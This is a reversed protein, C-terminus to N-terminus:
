LIGQKRLRGLIAKSRHSGLLQFPLESPGIDFLPPKNFLLRALYVPPTAVLLTPRKGRLWVAESFGSPMVLCLSCRLFIELELGWSLGKLYTCNSGDLGLDDQTYKADIRYQNEETVPLKMGSVIVHAKKIRILESLLRAMEGRVEAEPPQFRSTIHGSGTRFRWLFGVTFRDEFDVGDLGNERICWGLRERGEQGLGIAAGPDRFDVAKMAQWPKHNAQTDIKALIEPPLHDLVEERLEGDLVQFQHFSDVPVDPIASAPHIEDAFSLDFVGMERLRHPSAFFLVLRTGPQRRKLDKLCIMQEYYDGYAGHVISGVTKM